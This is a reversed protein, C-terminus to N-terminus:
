NSNIFNGENSLYKDVLYAETCFCPKLHSTHLFKLAFENFAIAACLRPQLRLFRTTLGILRGMDNGGVGGGEEITGM